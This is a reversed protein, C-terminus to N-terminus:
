NLLVAFLDWYEEALVNLDLESLVEGQPDLVEVQALTGAMPVVDADNRYQVQGALYIGRVEVRQKLEDDTSMQQLMKAARRRLAGSDRSSGYKIDNVPKLTAERALKALDSEQFFLALEQAYAIVILNIKRKSTVDLGGFEEMPQTVQIRKREAIAELQVNLDRHAERLLNLEATVRRRKLSRFFGRYNRRQARLAKVRTGLEDSQGVVAAYESEVEDLAATREQNQREAFKQYAKDRYSRWLESAHAALTQNCRDWLGRLQYYTVVIEASEPDSLLAELHSLRQQVRLMLADKQQSQTEIHSKESALAALEKKLEARNWFLRLLQEEDVASRSNKFLRPTITAM